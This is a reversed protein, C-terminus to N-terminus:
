LSSCASEDTYYYDRDGQSFSLLVIKKTSAKMVLMLRECAAAM